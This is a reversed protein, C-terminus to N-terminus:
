PTMLLSTGEPSQMPSDMEKDKEAGLAVQIRQLKARKREELRKSRDDCRRGSAAKVSEKAM